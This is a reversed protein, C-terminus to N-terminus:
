ILKSFFEFPPFEDTIHFYHCGLRKAPEIDDEFSDGIILVEKPYVNFFTLAREFIELRPKLYGIECGIFIGDFIKLLNHGELVSYLRCDWNSIVGLKLNYEKAQKVFEYFGPVIEVCDPKAFFHYARLFAEEFFPTNSYKKFVKFFVKKWGEKCKEGTLNVGGLEEQFVKRYAMRLKKVVEEENIEVGYENWLNKYIVGLSPKFRLFTGEADLLIIKLM